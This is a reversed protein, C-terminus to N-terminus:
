LLPVAVVVICCDRGGIEEQDQKKSSDRAVGGLWGFRGAGGPKSTSTALFGYFFFQRTLITIV